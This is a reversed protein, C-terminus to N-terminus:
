VLPNRNRVIVYIKKGVFAIKLLNVTIECLIKVIYSVGSGSCGHSGRVPLLGYSGDEGSLFLRM